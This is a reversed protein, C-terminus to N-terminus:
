FVGTSTKGTAQSFVGVGNTSSAASTVGYTGGVAALGVNNTSFAYVGTNTGMGHVGTTGSGVVGYVGAGMVGTRGITPLTYSSVQGIVGRADSSNEATAHIGMLKGQVTVDPHTTSNPTGGTYVVKLVTDNTASVDVGPTALALTVALLPLSFASHRM